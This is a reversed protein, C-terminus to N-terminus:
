FTFYLSPWCAYVTFAVPCQRSQLDRKNHQPDEAVCAPMMILGNSYNNDGKKMNAM